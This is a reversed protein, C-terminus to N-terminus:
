DYNQEIYELMKELTNRLTFDYVNDNDTVKVGLILSSDHELFLKKGGFIDQFQEIDKFDVGPPSTFFVSTEREQEKLARIYAKLESRTLIDAIRM